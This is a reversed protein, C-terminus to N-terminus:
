PTRTSGFKSPSLQPKPRKAELERLQTITLPKSFRVIYSTDAHLVIETAPIWSERSKDHAARSPFFVMSIGTSEQRSRSFYVCVWAHNEDLKSILGACEIASRWCLGVPASVPSGLPKAHRPWAITGGTAVRALSPGRPRPHAVLHYDRPNGRFRSESSVADTAAGVKGVTPSGTPQIWEVIKQSCPSM